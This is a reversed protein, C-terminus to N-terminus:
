HGDEPKESDPCGVTEAGFEAERVEPSSVLVDEEGEGGEYKQEEGKKDVKRFYSERFEPGRFFLWDGILM